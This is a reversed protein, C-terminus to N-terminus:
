DLNRYQRIIEDLGSYFQEIEKFSEVSLLVELALKKAHIEQIIWDYENSLLGNKVVKLLKKMMSLFWDSPQTEIAQIVEEFAFFDELRQHKLTGLLLNMVFTEFIRKTRVEIMSINIKRLVKLVLKFDITQLGLHHQLALFELDFLTYIEADQLRDILEGEVEMIEEPEVMCNPDSLYSMAQMMYLVSLKGLTFSTNSFYEKFQQYTSGAGVFDGTELREVFKKRYAVTFSANEAELNAELPSLCLIEVIIGLDSLKIDAEGKVVRQFTKVSIGNEEFVRYPIKKRRRVENLYSGLDRYELFESQKKTM